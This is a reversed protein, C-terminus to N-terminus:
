TFMMRPHKQFTRLSVPFHHQLYRLKGLKKFGKILKMQGVFHFSDEATTWPIDGGKLHTKHPGGKPDSRHRLLQSVADGRWFSCSLHSTHKNLETLKVEECTMLDNRLKFSPSAALLRSSKRAFRWSPLLYVTGSRLVTEQESSCTTQECFSKSCPFFSESAKPVCPDVCGCTRKM